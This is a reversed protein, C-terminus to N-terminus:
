GPHVAREAQEPELETEEVLFGPRRGTAWQSRSTAAFLGLLFAPWCQLILREGASNLHWELPMPTLVFVVVVLASQFLAAVMPVCRFASRPRAGLLASLAVALLSLHLTRHYPLEVAPLFRGLGSLVELWRESSLVNRVVQSAPNHRSLEPAIGPSVLGHFALWLVAPLAAGAAVAVLERLAVRPGRARAALATRVSLAIAAAALGENKTWGAFGLLIGALALRFSRRRGSSEEATLFAGLGAVVFASVAVDAYQAGSWKLFSSTSCLLLAAVTGSVPGAAAATAGALAAPAALAFAQALWVPALTTEGAYSWLRAVSLPLLLPYEPHSWALEPAFAARWGAGARLIFRARQNWIAWADWEGHPELAMLRTLRWLLLGLAVCVLAALILRRADPAGGPPVAGPLRRASLSLTVAMFFLADAAVYGRGFVGGLMLWSFAFASGLGAGILVSAGARWLVDFPDRFSRGGLLSVIAWGSAFPLGAGVALKWTPTM